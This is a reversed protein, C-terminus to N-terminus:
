LNSLQEALEEIYGRNELKDRWRAPIASAGLYAGSIAGTMAGITDADGGLSVAGLVALIFSGPQSLFAYIATPVSNFAEIGHGLELVVRDKDSQPLLTKVKGLKEQYIGAQVLCVLRTLFDDRDLPLSPELGTALAVACAQLAAGEKGLQHAHTIQSSGCAVQRLREPDHHYLAGIPAARMAAGNGFSGGQYLKLAANDWAIGCRIMRFIRPPGSGYGRWPELDYHRVFTEAMDQGNFGRNRIARRVQRDM